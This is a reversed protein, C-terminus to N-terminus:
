RRFGRGPKGADAQPQAPAQPTPAPTETQASATGNAEAKVPVPGISFKVTTNDGSKVDKYWIPAVKALTTARRIMSKFASKDATPVTFRKRPAGNEATPKGNSEWEKVMAAVLADLAQQTEDRERSRGSAIETQTDEVTEPTESFTIAM